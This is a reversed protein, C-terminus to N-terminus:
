GQRSLLRGRLKRETEKFIEDDQRGGGLKWLAEFLTLWYEALAGPNETGMRSYFAGDDEQAMSDFRLLLGFAAPDPEEEESFEKIRAEIGRRIQPDQAPALLLLMESLADGCDRGEKALLACCFAMLEPLLVASLRPPEATRIHGDDELKRIMALLAAAAADTRVLLSDRADKEM